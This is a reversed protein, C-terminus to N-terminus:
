EMVEGGGRGKAARSGFQVARKVMDKVGELGLEGALERLMLKDGVGQPLTFDCVKTV